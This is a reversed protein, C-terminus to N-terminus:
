QWHCSSSGHPPLLQSLGLYVEKKPKLFYKTLFPLSGVSGRGM